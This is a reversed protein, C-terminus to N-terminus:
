PPTGRAERRAGTAEELLGHETCDAVAHTQGLVGRHMVCIRDCTGLLEPLYSSVMLVAKGASALADIREYIQSKSGVDIGRTPEDLLLVDVDHHLLRALAVKQQNGGSLHGIPQEPDGCKIALREIWTNALTRQARPSVVGRRSPLKSLTLNDVVSLGAALGEGKRDESLMGVGQSLRRAPSAPGVFAAVRVSGGRVPALGFVTRLLETRGAGVLGAIGLVEGRRLSLSAGHPLPDGALNELQLLVEGPERPSRVFLQDIRRGAMMRVIETTPVDAVAGEGVTAGDRLVTFRDAIQRVEELFHSIYLVTVGDERLHRIVEFLRQADEKGLSSTPEDLILLRCGRRGILARAIEVLQQAAVPLEGAPKSLWDASAEGALPALAAGAQARMSSFDLWGFRSQERGLMINDLVSIHPCISLEQNVMAVGLERAAAPSTPRYPTGDLVISGDDADLGGALINMLTSKGAGNEGVIAHVEGARATLEVGDLAKTAGFSKRVAHVILRDTM